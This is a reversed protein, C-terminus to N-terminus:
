RKKKKKMKMERKSMSVAVNPPQTSPRPQTSPALKKVAGGFDLGTKEKVIRAGKQLADRKLEADSKNSFEGIKQGVGVVDRAIDTYKGKPLYPLVKSAVNSIRGITRGVGRAKDFLRRSTRGVRGLISM